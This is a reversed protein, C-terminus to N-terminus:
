PVFPTSSGQKESLLVKSSENGNDDVSIITYFYTNGFTASTDIYSTSSTETLLVGREGAKQSRYIRVFAFDEDSPNKWSIEVESLDNYSVSIDSVNAPPIIDIPKAKYQDSLESRKGDKSTSELTYYYVVNEEVSSDRYFNIDASLNALEDGLEGQEQSRYIHVRDVWSPVSSWILILNNGSGPDYIEIGKPSTFLDKEYSFETQSGFKLDSRQIRDLFQPRYFFSTDIDSLRTSSNSVYEMSYTRLKIHYEKGYPSFSFSQPELFRLNNEFSELLNKFGTYDTASFIADVDLAVLKSADTEETSKSTRDNNSFTTRLKEIEPQTIENVATFNISLLRINNEKAISSLDIILAEKRAREPLFYYLREKETQDLTSFDSLIEKIRSLRDQQSLLIKQKSELNLEGGSGVLLYKPWLFIYVLGCFIVLILVVIFYFYKELYYSRSSSHTTINNIPM